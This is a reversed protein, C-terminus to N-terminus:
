RHPEELEDLLMEAALGRLRADGTRLTDVIALRRALAPDTRAAPLALEHLPRLEVGRVGGSPHPWVPPLDDIPALRSVVPEAAWAAPVGRTEGGIRGPFVYKVAHLLFEEAATAPTRGRRGDYLGAEQLRRLSRHTGASDYGLDDALERISFREDEGLISLLVIVDQGRLVPTLSGSTDHRL